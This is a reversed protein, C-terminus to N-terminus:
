IQNSSCISRKLHATWHVGKRFVTSSVGPIPLGLKRIEEASIGTVTEAIDGFNSIRHTQFKESLYGGM